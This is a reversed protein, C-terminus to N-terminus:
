FSAVCDTSGTGAEWEPAEQSCLWTRFHWDNWLFYVAYVWALFWLSFNPTTNSLPSHVLPQIDDGAGPKDTTKQSTSSTCPHVCCHPGGDSHADIDSGLDEKDVLYSDAWTETEGWSIVESQFSHFCFSRMLVVKHILNSKIFPSRAKNSSKKWM